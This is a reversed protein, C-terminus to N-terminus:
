AQVARFCDPFVARPCRVRKIPLQTELLSTTGASSALGYFNFPVLACAAFLAFHPISPNPYLRPHFRLDTYADDVASQWGFLDSGVVYKPLWDPLGQAGSEAAPLNGNLM